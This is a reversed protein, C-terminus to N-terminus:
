RGPCSGAPRAPATGAPATATGTGAPPAGCSRRRTSRTGGWRGELIVPACVWEASWGPGEVRMRVPVDTSLDMRVEAGDALTSLWARAYAIGLRVTASGEIDLCEEAPVRVTQGYGGQDLATATLGTDQDVTLVVHEVGRGAGKVLSKLDSALVTARSDFTINPAKPVGRPTLLRMATTVRGAVVTLRGETAEMRVTSTKLAKRLEPVAVAWQGEVPMPSDLACMVMAVHSPDVASLAWLGDKDAPTFVAEDTVCSLADLVAKLPETEIEM